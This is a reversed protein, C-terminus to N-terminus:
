VNLALLGGQRAVRLLAEMGDTDTPPTPTGFGAAGFYTAQGVIGTGVRLFLPDNVLDEANQAFVGFDAGGAGTRAHDAMTRILTVLDARATGWGNEEFYLHSDGPDVLLGDFGAETIQDVWSLMLSTWDEDWYRVRYLGDWDPLAPGVWPP